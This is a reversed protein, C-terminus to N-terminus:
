IQGNRVAQIYDTYAPEGGSARVEAAVQGRHYASHYLVHSLIDAIANTYHDGQTNTYRVKRRLGEDTLSGLFTPWTEALKQLQQRCEEYSWEPWVAFPQGHQFIRSLWLYECAAIHNMWRLAKVPTKASPLAKLAAENAWANYRFQRKLDSPTM